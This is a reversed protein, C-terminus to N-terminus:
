ILLVVVVAAAPVAAPQLDAAAAMIVAAAVAAVSASLTMIQILITELGAMVVRIYHDQRATIIVAPVQQAGPQLRAKKAPAPAAEQLIAATVTEAAAVSM